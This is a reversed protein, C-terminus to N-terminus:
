IISGTIQIILNRPMSEHYEEIMRKIDMLNITIVVRENKRNTIQSKKKLFKKEIQRALLNNIKNLM